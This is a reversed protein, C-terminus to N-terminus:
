GEDELGLEAERARREQDLALWQTLATSSRDRELDVDRDVGRNLLRLDLGSLALGPRHETYHEM